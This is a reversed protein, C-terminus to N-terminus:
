APLELLNNLQEQVDAIQADVQALAQRGELLATRVEITNQVKVLMELGGVGEQAGARIRQAARLGWFLQEVGALVERTGKELMAKIAYGKGHVNMSALALLKNNALARQRADELTLRYPNAPAGAAPSPQALAEAPVPTLESVPNGKPLSQQYGVQGLGRAVGP